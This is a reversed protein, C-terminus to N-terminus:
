SAKPKKEYMYIHIKGILKNRRGNGLVARGEGGREEGSFFL